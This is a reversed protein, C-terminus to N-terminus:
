GFGVEEATILGMGDSVESRGTGEWRLDVLPQNLLQVADLVVRSARWGHPVVREGVGLRTADCRM